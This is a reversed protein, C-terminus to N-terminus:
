ERGQLRGWLDAMFLCQELLEEIKSDDLMPYLGYLSRQLEEYSRAGRVFELIPNILREIAGQLREDAQALLGEIAEQDPSFRKPSAFAAGKDPVGPLLIDGESFNYAKLYYQKTFSVGQQVLKLDREAREPQLDEEEYFRFRPYAVSPFNLDVLWRIAKQLTGVVLAKDQDVIDSRVALHVRGLAESGVRGQETTLTQGLVAKSIEFNCREILREYVQASSSKAAEKIEVSADEPVVAVADQVMRELADLLANIEETTAGRPHRGMLFPMGYKETFIVWFKWGGKKFVCPWFCKSLVREGYPNAYSPQNRALLFKKPPLLEGEVPHDKSRFRLRNEADFGFWEPPKGVIDSIVVQSGDVEWMVELPSYGFLVADLVESIIRQMDLGKLVDRVFDAAKRDARKGGGPEILWECSLVGAKRSQICGSLHPDALLNRYVTIDKGQKRLVPDPDPLFMGLAYYDYFRQRTAIQRSPPRGEDLDVYEHENMWLKM